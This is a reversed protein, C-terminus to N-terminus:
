TGVLVAQSKRGVGSSALSTPVRSEAVASRVSMMWTKDYGRANKQSAFLGIVVTGEQSLRSRRTSCECSTFTHPGDDIKLM